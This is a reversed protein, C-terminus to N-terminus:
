HIAKILVGGYTVKGMKLKLDLVESHNAQYVDSGLTFDCELFAVFDLFSESSQRCAGSLEYITEMYDDYTSPCRTCIDAIFISLCYATNNISILVSRDTRVFM